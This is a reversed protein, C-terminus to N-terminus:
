KAGEKNNEADLKQRKVMFREADFGSLGRRKAEALQETLRKASATARTLGAIAQEVCRRYYAIGDMRTALNKVHWEIPMKQSM